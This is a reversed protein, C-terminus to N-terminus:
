ENDGLIPALMGVLKINTPQYEVILPMDNDYHFSIDEGMHKFGFLINLKEKNYEAQGEGEVNCIGGQFDGKYGNKGSLLLTNNETQFKVTPADVLDIDKLCQQFKKLEGGGCVNLDITPLDRFDDYDDLLTITFNRRYKGDIIIHLQYDDVDFIVSEEKKVSKLINFIDSPVIKMYEGEVVDYTEFFDKSFQVDFILIASKAIVQCRLYEKYAILTIEEAVKSAGELFSNLAPVDKISFRM